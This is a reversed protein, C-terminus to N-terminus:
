VELYGNYIEQEIAIKLSTKTIKLGHSNGIRIVKTYGDTNELQTIISTHNQKGKGSHPVPGFLILRYNPNYRLKRFPYNEVQKYDLYLEVREKAIGISKLVGYIQREKIQSDGFILIRGDPNSDYLPTEENPHLGGMGIKTLYDQLNGRNHAEKIKLHLQYSAETIIDVLDEHTIPM